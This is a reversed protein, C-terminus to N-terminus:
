FVSDRRGGRLWRLVMVGMLLGLVVLAIPMLTRKIRAMDLGGTEATADDEQTSSDAQGEARAVRPSTDKRQAQSPAPAQGEEMAANAKILRLHQAAGKTGAARAKAYWKKATGIDQEVGWGREFMNGLGLMAEGDGNLTRELYWILLVSHPKDIVGSQSSSIHSLLLTAAPNNKDKAKKL